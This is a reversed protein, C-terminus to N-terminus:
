LRFSPRPTHTNRASRAGTSAMTRKIVLASMGISPDQAMFSWRFYMSGMKKRWPWISRKGGGPGQLVATWHVRCTLLGRGPTALPPKRLATLSACLRSPSNASALRRRAASCCRRPRGPGPRPWGDRGDDGFAPGRGRLGNDSASWLRICGHPSFRPSPSYMTRSSADRFRMHSYM